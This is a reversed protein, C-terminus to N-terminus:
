AAKETRYFYSTKTKDEDFTYIDYGPYAAFFNIMAFDGICLTSHVFLAVLSAWQFPSSGWLAGMFFVTNIFFFPLFAIFIFEKKGAVFGPASAYFLMQKLDMGYKVRKAGALRYALGHLGEHFPIVLFMGSLIGIFLSIFYTGTSFPPNLFFCTSFSIIYILLMLNFGYFFLIPWRFQKLQGTVFTVVENHDLKKLLKYKEPNKLDSSNPKSSRSM